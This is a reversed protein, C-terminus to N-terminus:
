DYRDSKYLRMLRRVYFPLKRSNDKDNVVSEVIERVKGEDCQIRGIDILNTILIRTGEWYNTGRDEFRSLPIVNSDRCFLVYDDFVRGDPPRNTAPVYHLLADGHGYYGNKFGRWWDNTFAGVLCKEGLIYPYNDYPSLDRITINTASVGGWIVDDVIFEASADGNTAVPTGTFIVDAIGVLHPLIAIYRYYHPPWTATVTRHCLMFSLAIVFLIKLSSRGM